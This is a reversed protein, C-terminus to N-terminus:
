KVQRAADFLEAMLDPDDAAALVAVEAPELGHAQRAKQLVDRVHAPEPRSHTELTCVIRKEDIASSADRTHSVM